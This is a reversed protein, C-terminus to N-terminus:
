RTRSRCVVVAFVQVVVVVLVVMCIFSPLVKEDLVIANVSKATLLKHKTKNLTFGQLYLKRGDNVSKATLLTLNGFANVSYM